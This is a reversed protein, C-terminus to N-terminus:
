FNYFFHGNQVVSFEPKKARFVGNTPCPIPSQGSINHGPYVPWFAAKLATEMLLFGPFALM